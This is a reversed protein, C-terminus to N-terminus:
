KGGGAEDRGEKRAEDFIVELLAEMTRRDMM